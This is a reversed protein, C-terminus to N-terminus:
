DLEGVVQEVVEGTVVPAVGPATRKGAMLAAAAGLTDDSVDGIMGGYVDVTTSYHEHGIRRQIEHMPAGAAAMVAVHMHRLWHPTPERDGLAAAKVIGPWTDRLFTHQNWPNGLRNTLVLDAPGKGIIRRRVMAASEPLMRIRRFGAESKAADETIVQRGHADIRFVRRVDVWVDTGDDTVNRVPLATAESFRWGTEGLFLILDAADPNAKVRTAADLIAAFERTTTGKPPKKARRPLETEECPNHTVLRRSRARGFKFMSHLLMHRDAVSKPSLRAAMHDVLKQVDAEDVSEAARHGFWPGIWNAYDRRYQVATRETVGRAKHAIFQEWLEGVTLRDDPGEGRHVALAKDPGLLDVLQRFKEASKPDGFSLSSQKGGHRYLVAWVTEGSSYTRERMSAM